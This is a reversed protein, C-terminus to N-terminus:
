HAFFVANDACSLLVFVMGFSAKFYCSSCFFEGCCKRRFGQRLCVRCEEGDRADAERAEVQIACDLVCMGPIIMRISSCAIPVM